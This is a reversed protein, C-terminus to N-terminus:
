RIVWPTNCRAELPKYDVGLSYGKGPVKPFYVIKNKWGDERDPLVYVFRPEDFFKNYEHAYIPVRTYPRDKDLKEAAMKIAEWLDYTSLAKDWGIYYKRAM